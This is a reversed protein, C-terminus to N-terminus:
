TDFGPAFVRVMRDPRRIGQSWLLADAADVLLRGEEGGRLVGLRRRAAAAYLPIEAEDFGTAAAELLREAEPRDGGRWAAGALIIDRLGGSGRQPIKAVVAACRRADALDSASGGVMLMGRIQYTRLRIDDVLLLMSRSLPKWADLVRRYAEDETGAYLDIWGGMYLYLFHQVQFGTTSWGRMARALVERAGAVDDNALRSVIGYSMSLGHALYRNGRAQADELLVPGRRMLEAWEGLYVMAWNSFQAATALEWNVDKCRARLLRTAEDFANLSERWHGQFYRVFGRMVLLFGATHDDGARQGLADAEVLLQEVKHQNGNTSLHGAEFGLGRAIRAIDGTALAGLLYRTTFDAGLKSDVISIGTAMSWCADVRQRLAEPVDAAPRPRFRRGRFFLKFRSWLLSILISAPTDPLNLGVASLVRAAVERGRDIHGSILLQEFARRHLELARGGTVGETAVLYADAAERGRGASRLADGLAERVSPVRPDTPALLELSQRYLHSARDFALARAAAEAAHLAYGVARDHAGAAAWHGALAEVDRLTEIELQEALRRHWGRLRPLDIEAVVAERIRDHYCEVMDDLHAGSTRVFHGARLSAIARDDSRDLGAAELALSQPVPRGAVAVLELLARSEDALAAVRAALVDRLGVGGSAHARTHWALEEVFFPSGESEAVIHAVEDANPQGRLHAAALAAADATSLPELVIRRRAVAQGGSETAELLQGLVSNGGVDESRCTLLVLARPVRPERLLDHLLRVSDVDGWQLDDVWLVLPERAAIRGFLTKLAASARSALEATDPLEIQARRVLVAPPLRELVPFLRSLLRLDEPLLGDVEDPPLLNLYRALTDVLGDFVKYPVNEREYCRGSLVVVDDRQAFPRLFARVLASKGLGSRGEIVVRVPRGQRVEDFADRLQSLEGERGVFVERDLPVSTDTLAGLRALIEAASPRSEPAWALLDLALAALDDPASPDLESPATPVAHAGVRYASANFYPLVGTLAQYLMVGVAYWDSQESMAAGSLREPAMYAPTGETTGLTPAEYREAAGSALGFDLIVVRGARDVLVNGPKLDGHRRGSRHIAVVGQCLQVIADRLRAEDLLGRSAVLHDVPAPPTRTSLSPDADVDWSFTEGALSALEDRAGELRTPGSHLSLTDNARSSSAESLSAPLSPDIDRRRVWSLFSLGDVLEMTFFWEGGAQSLELLSVLNPHTVDALARFERKLRIIGEVSMKALTKLAVDTGRQPDYARYVIGTGGRGLRGRIQYRDLSTPQSM